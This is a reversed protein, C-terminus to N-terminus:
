FDVLPGIAERRLRNIVGEDHESRRGDGAYRWDDESLWDRAGVGFELCYNELRDVDWREMGVLDTKLYDFVGRSTVGNVVVDAVTNLLEVLPHRRAPRLTDLFFPIGYDRFVAKLYPQYSDINSVIVAVDRYRLGRDERVLREIGRAVYVVEARPNSAAVIKVSEGAQQQRFGGQQFVHREIHALAPVSAFRCPRELLVPPKVELRFQEVRELLDVYTRETPGFLSPEGMGAAAQGGSGNSNGDSSGNGSSNNSGISPVAGPDLCLAIKAEGAVRLMTLLMANEQATFGAFGDVWLRCNRFRELNAEAERAATLQTDPNAFRGSLFECYGGFILALDALKRATIGDRGGERLSDALRLVDEPSKDYHQLETITQVIKAALGPREAASGFVMLQASHRRLLQHVIMERGVRSIGPLAADADVLLFALREFSLIHLRHYGGIRTDSLVAREAQYTAQEPVLLILPDFAGEELLADIVGQVCAHTKGTGSRGLIFQVAM